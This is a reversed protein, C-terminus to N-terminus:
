RHHIKLPIELVELSKIQKPISFKLTKIQKLKKLIIQLKINRITKFSKLRIHNQKIMKNANLVKKRPTM